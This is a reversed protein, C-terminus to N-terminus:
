NKEHEESWKKFEEQLDADKILLEIMSQQGERFNIIHPAAHTSRASETTEQALLAWRFLLEKLSKNGARESIWQRFEEELRAEHLINAIADLKGEMYGDMYSYPAANRQMAIRRIALANHFVVSKLIFLQEAKDM